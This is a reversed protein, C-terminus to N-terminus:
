NTVARYFRQLDNSIAFNTYWYSVYNTFTPHWNTPSGINTSTDIRYPRNTLGFVQFWYSTTNFYFPSLRSASDGHVFLTAVKSTASGSASTAVCYYNGANTGQVNTISYTANIANTISNTSPSSNTGYFWWQNTPVPMGIAITKFIANENANAVVNTGEPHNVFFPATPQAFHLTFAGFALNLPAVAIRYTTNSVANFVLKPARGSANTTLTLSSVASGTYVALGIQEGDTIALADFTVDGNAPATWKYWVSPRSASGGHFPEGPEYWARRLTGNTTGQVGSLTIANTFSDNAPTPLRVNAWETAWGGVLPLGTIFNANTSAYEQITWFDTDNVPDVTTMSYDGWEPSGSLFPGTGNTYRRTSQFTNLEDFEHLSYNASAYQNSSFSSYGILVDEFRNVAISDFAYSTVGSTDEIRGFQTYVRSEPPIKWWQVASYTPNAAPLFVTQSCWLSGNQYVVGGPRSDTFAGIRNTVGLQPHFTAINTGPRHAWPMNVPILCPVNSTPYDGDNSTAFNLVPSHVAGTISLLRLYGFGNSNSTYSQLLYLAALSPDYTLAPFFSGATRPDVLAFFNSTGLVGSYLSTKNFVWIHSRDFRGGNTLPLGEMRFMNGHVVVWDKNFGILPYDMWYNTGPDPDVSWVYWGNTPNSTQSVGLLLKSDVSRGDAASVALWRGNYPDYVVRPDFVRESFQINTYGINDGDTWFAEL